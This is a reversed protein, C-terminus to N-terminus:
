IKITGSGAPRNERIYHKTFEELRADYLAYSNGYHDYERNMFDIKAFCYLTYLDDFPAPVYLKRDGDEPWEYAAGEKGLHLAIERDLGFVWGAVTEDSYTHPRQEGLEKIILNATKM